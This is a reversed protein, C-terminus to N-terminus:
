TKRVQRLTLNFRTMNPRGFVDLWEDNVGLKKLVCVKVFYGYAFTVTPPKKFKNTNYEPPLLGEFFKRAKDIKGTHPKDYMFVEVTFERAKGGAYQTLPYSM